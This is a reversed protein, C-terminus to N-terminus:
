WRWRCLFSRSRNGICDSCASGVEEKEKSTIVENGYKFKVTYNKNM